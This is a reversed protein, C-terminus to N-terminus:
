PSDVAEIYSTGRKGKHMVAWHQKCVKCCLVWAEGTGRLWRWRIADDRWCCDPPTKQSTKM